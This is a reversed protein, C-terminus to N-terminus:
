FRRKTLHLIRLFMYSIRLLKLQIFSYGSYKELYYLRSKIMDLMRYSSPAKASVDHAHLACLKSTFVIQGGLSKVQAALIAEESYLFTQEDLFNIRKLFDLKFLLCCGMVKPVTIVSDREFSLLLPKSRLRGPLTQRFWFLEEFYTSERMPSQDKGDLGVIRSSSIYYSVESFLNDALEKLYNSNSLVVDPNIILVADVGLVDALHVGVNNGASYGRNEKNLVFCIGDDRSLKLDDGSTEFDIMPANPFKKCRWSKIKDLCYEDSNNDVIIINQEVGQQKILGDVCKFLDNPSNYNLVVSAISHIKM